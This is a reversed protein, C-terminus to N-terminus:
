NLAAVWPLDHIIEVICLCYVRCTYFIIWLKKTHCWTIASSSDTSSLSTFIWVLLCADQGLIKWQFLVLWWGQLPIGGPNAQYTEGADWLCRGWSAHWTGMDGGDEYVGVYLVQLWDTLVGYYTSCLHTLNWAVAPLAVVMYCHYLPSIDINLIESSLYILIV